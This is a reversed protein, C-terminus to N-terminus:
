DQNEENSHKTYQMYTLDNDKDPIDIEEKKLEHNLKEKLNTLLELLDQNENHILNLKAEITSIIEDEVVQSADGLISNLATIFKSPNQFIEYRKVDKERRLHLFITRRVDAGLKELVIDVSQIVIDETETM